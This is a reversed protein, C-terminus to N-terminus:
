RILAKEIRRNDDLLMLGEKTLVTKVKEGADLLALSGSHDDVLKLVTRRDGSPDFLAIEPGGEDRVILQLRTKGNRDNLVISPGFKSVTLAGRPTGDPETLLFQSAEVTKPTSKRQQAETAAVMALCLSIAALSYRAAVTHHNTM